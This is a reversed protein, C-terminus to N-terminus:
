KVGLVSSDIEIVDPLPVTMTFDWGDDPYLICISLNGCINQQQQEPTLNLRAYHMQINGCSQGWKRYCAPKGNMPLNTIGNLVLMQYIYAKTKKTDSLDKFTQILERWINEDTWTKDDYKSLKVDLYVIIKSREEDSIHTTMYLNHQAATVKM